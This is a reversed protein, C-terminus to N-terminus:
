PFLKKPRVVRKQKSESSLSLCSIPLSFLSFFQFRMLKDLLIPGPGRQAELVTFLIIHISKKSEDFYFIKSIDSNNHM